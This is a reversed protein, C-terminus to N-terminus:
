VAAVIKRYQSARVPPVPRQAWNDFIVLNASHPRRQGREHPLSSLVEAPRLVLEGHGHAGARRADALELTAITRHRRAQHQPRERHHLTGQLDLDVGRSVHQGIRREGPALALCEGLAEEAATPGLPDSCALPHIRGSSRTIALL